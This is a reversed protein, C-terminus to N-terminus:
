STVTKYQKNWEINDYVFVALQLTHCHATQININEEKKTTFVLSICYNENMCYAFSFKFRFM